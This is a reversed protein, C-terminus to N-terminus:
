SMRRRFGLFGLLTLALWGVGAGQREVKTENEPRSQISRAGEDAIPILKVAVVKEATNGNGCYSDSATTDYGGECKLATASIVGADNIDTADYIRYANNASSFSGGNTLDDLLWAKHGGYVDARTNTGKGDDYAYIFARQRRQKGDKERINEIDVRGVVENMNNIANMEGGAGTFFIGGSLFSASVTSQSADAVFLRNAAAGSEPKDGRRKATGIVILNENIDTAVSNSHIYESGIEVQANQILSPTWANAVLNSADFTGNPKFVAAQMLVNDGDFWTNFGAMYPNSSTKDIAIARASAQSAAQHHNATNNTGDVWGSVTIGEVSNGSSPVEWIYAKNAFEFNQCAALAAPDTSSACTNLDGLYDKEKDGYDFASVSASGVVYAKGGIVASDWAMSHGMKKVIDENTSLPLLQVDNVFGRNRFVRAYKGNVDYYGSSTNGLTMDANAADKALKNVVTNATSAVPTTASNGSDPTYASTLPPTLVTTDKFAIANSAYSGINWANRERNLGGAGNIGSWQRDAWSNCTNYGLENHCYSELDDRDLYYFHNDVMYPVEERYSFGETGNRTDGALSFTNTPSDAACDVSNSDAIDFCDVGSSPEIASAHYENGSVTASPNVEVVKYLAANAQTAGFVLLALASYQFKNSSM